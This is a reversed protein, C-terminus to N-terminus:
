EQFLFTFFTRMESWSRKDAEADYKLPLHFTKGYGDADPNTFGHMVGPYAVFRYGVGAADMEEKFQKVQEPPVFPDDAGHLVLVKAKVGGPKAPTDTSLAGHFSVVGDLDVGARAMHLVVGGGFCYGIAAIHDPDVTDQRRLLDLAAMFRKEGVDKNKQVEAAFQGAEEPHHAQKGDGYMDVALATYGMEALMRARKRVYDNHGWWEHVVLIGPRKGQLTKDYALYGKLTQGNASYSIEETHLTACASLLGALMVVMLSPIVSM